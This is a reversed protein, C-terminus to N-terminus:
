APALALQFGFSSAVRGVLHEGKKEKAHLSHLYQHHAKKAILGTLELLSWGPLIHWNTCNHCLNEPTGAAKQKFKLGIGCSLIMDSVTLRALVRHSPHDYM